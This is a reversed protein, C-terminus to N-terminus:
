RPATWDSRVEMGTIIMGYRNFGEGYKANPHLVVRASLNFHYMSRACLLNWCKVVYTQFSELMKNKM